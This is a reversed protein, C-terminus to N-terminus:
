STREAPYFGMIMRSAAEWASRDREDTEREPISEVAQLLRFAWYVVRKVHEPHAHRIHQKLMEAEVTSPEWGFLNVALTHADLQPYNPQSTM